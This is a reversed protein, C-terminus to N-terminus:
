SNPPQAQEWAWLLALGEGPLLPCSSGLGLGLGPLLPLLPLLICVPSGAHDSSSLGLMQSLQGPVPCSTSPGSVGVSKRGERDGCGVEGPGEPVTESALVGQTTLLGCHCRRERPQLVARARSARPSSAKEQVGWGAFLCSTFLWRSTPASPGLDGSSGWKGVQKGLVQISAMGSEPRWGGQLTPLPRHAPPPHVFVAETKPFLRRAQPLLELLLSFTATWFLQASPSM